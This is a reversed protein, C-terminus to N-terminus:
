VVSWSGSISMGTTITSSYGGWKGGGSSTSAGNSVTNSTITGDTNITITATTTTDSSSSGSIVTRQWNTTFIKASSPRYQYPITGIVTGASCSAVQINISMSVNLGYRSLSNTAVSSAYNFSTSSTNTTAMDLNSALKYHVFMNTGVEEFYPDLNNVTQGFETLAQVKLGERVTEETIGTALLWYKLAKVQNAGIGLISCADIEKDNFLRDNGELNVNGVINKVGKHLWGKRLYFSEHARIKM